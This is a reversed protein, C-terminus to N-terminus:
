LSLTTNELPRRQNIIKKSLIRWKKLDSRLTKRLSKMEFSLQQLVEKSGEKTKKFGLYQEKLYNSKAIKALLEDTVRSVAEELQEKQQTFSTQIKELLENKREIVIREKIRSPSVTKLGHALGFANLTWILWKTPDFHYWRIGNRYDSAFTHHYNHYGEGFTLLSIVYNDVASHEQSFYRSGWTHALSNIFWTLHHLVFLRTWWALIFAGLYDNFIWGVFLFLLTNSLFFLPAYYKHQFVVLPKRLLDAVVKNDIQRPKEFLWLIHAYWFGKSISYPDKDTDVYAHHFRHDFTWRIASGQAAMTGLFLLVAEVSKHLKCASHSFCRHYLATISIGTVFVLIGSLAILWISPSCYYFYFPLIALLLVQYVIIFIGTTWNFNINKM